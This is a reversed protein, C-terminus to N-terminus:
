KLKVDVYIHPYNYDFVCDPAIKRLQPITLSCGSKNESAFICGFCGVGKTDKVATIKKGNWEYYKKKEM